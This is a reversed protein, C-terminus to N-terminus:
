GSCSSSCALGLIVPRLLPLTITRATTWADAGSARAARSLTSRSRGFSAQWHGIASCGSKAVYALLIILLTNRALPGFALLVGVALTSGPLAFTLAIAATSPGGLAAM